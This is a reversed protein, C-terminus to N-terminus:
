RIRDKCAMLSTDNAVSDIHEMLDNVNTYKKMLKQLMCDCYVKAKDPSGAWNNADQLCTQTYADKDEQPWTNCSLCICSLLVFLIYKKM